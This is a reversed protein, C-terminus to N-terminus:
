GDCGYDKLNETFVQYEAISNTAIHRDEGSINIILFDNAVIHGARGCGIIREGGELTAEIGVPANERAIRANKLHDAYFAAGLFIAVISSVAVGVFVAPYFSHTEWLLVAVVLAIAIFLVITLDIGTAALKQAMVSEPAIVPAILMYVLFFVLLVQTVIVFAPVKM